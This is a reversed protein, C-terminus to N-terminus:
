KRSGLKFVALDNYIPGKKTLASSKLNVKNVFMEGIDVNKSENVFRLLIERNKGSRVRGITLHPSFNGEGIKVCDNVRKMLKVLEDEGQNVGLWLTRIYSTSGFYGIGNVNVKFESEGKLCEKLSDKIDNVENENVNGLFKM